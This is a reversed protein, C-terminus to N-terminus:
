SPRATEQGDSGAALSIEGEQKYNVAKGRHVWRNSADSLMRYGYPAKLRVQFVRKQTIIHRLTEATV